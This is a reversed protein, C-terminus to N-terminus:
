FCITEDIVPLHFLRTNFMSDYAIKESDTDKLPIYNESILSLAIM